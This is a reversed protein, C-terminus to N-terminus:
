LASAIAVGASTGIREAGADIMALAQERTKIGGSAKIKIGPPLISRMKRVIEPDAGQPAFGTSTKVFDANAEACIECATYLDFSDLYSTEIIVKIIANREHALAAIQTLEERVSLYAMSKFQAINMVVDLETAGNQLANSAEFIKVAATAYGFPFGIVTAIEIKVPCFELMEATYAVYTPAVCVAKFQHVWAEECLKRVDTESANATLLTHDIYASLSTM